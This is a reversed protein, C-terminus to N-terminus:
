KVVLAKVKKDVAIILAEVSIAAIDFISQM